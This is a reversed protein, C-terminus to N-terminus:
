KFVIHLVCVLLYFDMIDTMELYGVMKMMNVFDDPRMTYNTGKNIRFLFVDFEFCVSTKHQHGLHYYHLEWKINLVM